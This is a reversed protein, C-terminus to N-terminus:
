SERRDRGKVEIVRCYGLLRSRLADGFTEGAWEAIERPPRNSTILLPLPREIWGNIAVYLPQLQTDRANTKDLDDLVLAGRAAGADISRLARKYEPMEFPLRLDTLLEAVSIWRLHAHQLRAMAAAAAIVTKGVGVEGWLLLGKPNDASAWEKAAHLAPARAEDWELKEFTIPKWREPVGARDIRALRAHERREALEAEWRQADERELCTDCRRIAGKALWERTMRAGLSDEAGTFEIKVKAKCSSCPRTGKITVIKGEGAGFPSLRKPEALRTMPETNCDERIVDAPVANM